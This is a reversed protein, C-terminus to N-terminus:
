YIFKGTISACIEMQLICIYIIVLSKGKMKTEIVKCVFKAVERLSSTSLKTSQGQYSLM